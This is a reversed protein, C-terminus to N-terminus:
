LTVARLPAVGVVATFANVTVVPAAPRSTYWTLAGAIVGLHKSHM